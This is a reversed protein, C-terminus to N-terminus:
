LPLLRLLPQPLKPLPPLLPLNHGLMNIQRMTKSM